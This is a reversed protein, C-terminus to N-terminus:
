RNVTTSPCWWLFSHPTLSVRRTMVSTTELVNYCCSQARVVSNDGTVLAGQRSSCICKVSVSYGEQSVACPPRSKPSRPVRNYGIGSAYVIFNGETDSDNENDIESHELIHQNTSKANVNSDAVEIIDVSDCTAM